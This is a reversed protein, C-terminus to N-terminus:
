VMYWTTLYYYAGSNIGFGTSTIENLTPNKLSKAHSDNGFAFVYNDGTKPTPMGSIKFTVSNSGSYGSYIRNFYCNMYFISNATFGYLYCKSLDLDTPNGSALSCTLTVNKKSSADTVCFCM